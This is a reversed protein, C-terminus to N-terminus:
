THHRTRRLCSQVPPTLRAIRRAIDSSRGQAKEHDACPCAHVNPADASERHGSLLCHRRHPHDVERPGFFADHKFCSIVLSAVSASQHRKRERADTEHGVTLRISRERCILPSACVHDRRTRGNRESHSRPMKSTLYGGFYLWLFGGKRSGILLCLGLDDTMQRRFCFISRDRARVAGGSIYVFHGPPLSDM